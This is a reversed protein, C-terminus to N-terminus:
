EFSFRYKTLMPVGDRSNTYVFGDSDVHIISGYKAADYPYSKLFNGTKDFVKICRDNYDCVIIDGTKGIAVDKIGAFVYDEDGELVGISQIAEIRLQRSNDNSWMGKESNEIVPVKWDPQAFGEHPLYISFLFISLFINFNLTKFFNNM